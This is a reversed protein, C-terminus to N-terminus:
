TTEREKSAADHRQISQDSALDLITNLFPFTKPLLIAEVPETKLASNWLQVQLRKWLQVQLTELFLTSM